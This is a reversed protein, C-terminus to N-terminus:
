LFYVKTGSGDWHRDDFATKKKNEFDQCMEYRSYNDLVIIGKEKVLSLSAEALKKRDLSGSDILAIDFKRDGIISLCEALSGVLFLNVNCIASNRLFGSVDNHWRKDTEFSMVNMVRKSFFVTSGGSGFELVEQSKKCFDELFRISGPTLWPCGAELMGSGLWYEKPMTVYEKSM